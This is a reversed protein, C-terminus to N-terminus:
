LYPGLVDVGSAYASVWRGHNSFDAVPTSGPIAHSLGGGVAIMRAKGAGLEFAAPYLPQQTGSNGAAVVVVVDEPLAGLAEGIGPPPGKNRRTM